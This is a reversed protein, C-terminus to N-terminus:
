GRQKDTKKQADAAAQQVNGAGKQISGEIQKEVGKLQQAPNGIAKGVSAQVKGAVDKATGKVQNRNMVDGRRYPLYSSGIQENSSTHV